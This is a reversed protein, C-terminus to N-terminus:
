MMVFSAMLVISCLIGMGQDVAEAQLLILRVEPGTGSTGTSYSLMAVRPPLGFAAATDASTVAIQALQEATPSVNVACDGYVLVQMMPQEPPIRCLHVFEVVHLRGDPAMEDNQSPQLGNPHLRRTDSIPCTSSGDCLVDTFALFQEACFM